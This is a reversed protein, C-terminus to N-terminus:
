RELVAAPSDAALVDRLKDWGIVIEPMGLAYAGLQYQAFTIKLGAATPEWTAYNEPKPSYGDAWQAVDDQTVGQDQLQDLILGPAEEALRELYRSSPKFLSALTLEQGTTTDFTHVDLLQSGHAGGTYTYTTIRVILVGPAPTATESSVEYTWALDPDDAAPGDPSKADAEYAGIGARAASSVAANITGAAATGSVEPYTLSWSWGKGTSKESKTVITLPAAEVTSPAAAATTPGPAGAAVSAALTSSVSTLGSSTGETSAADSSSNDSCAALALALTLLGVGATRKFTVLHGKDHTRLRRLIAAVLSTLGGAGSIRGPHGNELRDGAREAESHAGQSISSDM